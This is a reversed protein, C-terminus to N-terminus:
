FTPTWTGSSTFTWVDYGGVTTYVGGTASSVVGIPAKIIVEGNGGTGGFSSSHGGGGAGGGPQTGDIGNASGVAGDSGANGNTTGASGGTGGVGQHMVGGMGGDTTDGGSGGGGAGDDGSIGSGQGGTGGSTKIDGVGSSAQGGPGSGGFGGKALLTATSDFWTDGGSGGGSVLATGRSGGAGVTVTYSTGSQIVFFNLQSYAGGGGGVGGDGSAGRGNSGGGAGWAQVTVAPVFYNLAITQAVWDRQPGNSVTVSFTGTDGATSQTVEQEASTPGYPTNKVDYLKIAGTTTSIPASNTKGANIAFLTVVKENSHSTTISPATAVVGRGNADAVVDIPNPGTVGSFRTIGGAARTQSSITWTYSSPESNSTTKWYSAIGVNTDNDTRAVLTWGSPATIEAPTGGNYSVNALLFDGAAADSPKQLVLRTYTIDESVNTTSSGTVISALAAAAFIFSGLGLLVAGVRKIKMYDRKISIRKNYCKNKALSLVYKITLAFVGRNLPTDVYEARTDTLRTRDQWNSPM